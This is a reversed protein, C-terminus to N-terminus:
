NGSPMLRYFKGASSRALVVQNQQGVVTPVNTVTTWSGLTLDSSEQLVFASSSVPWSVTLSNATVGLHLPPVPMPSASVNFVTDYCFQHNTSITVKIDPWPVSVVVLGSDFRAPNRGGIQLDLTLEQELAFEGGIKYSGCGTVMTATGNLSFSWNVATVAYTNFLGDFGKPTLLFTGKVPVGIMLPCECPAFCGQQFTSDSNLHYLFTQANCLCSSAAAGCLLSLMLAARTM